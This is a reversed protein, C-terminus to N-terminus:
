LYDFVRTADQSRNMAQSSRTYRVAVSVPPHRGIGAIIALCVFHARAIVVNNSATFTDARQLAFIFVGGSAFWRCNRTENKGLSGRREVLPMM